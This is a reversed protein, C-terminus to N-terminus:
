KTKAFIVRGVRETLMAPNGTQCFTAHLTNRREKTLKCEGPVSKAELERSFGYRQNAMRM